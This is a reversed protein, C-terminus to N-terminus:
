LSRVVEVVGAVILKGDPLVLVSRAEEATGGIPLGALDALNLFVRGGDGFSTDPTGDALFRAVVMQSDGGVVAFGAALVNGSADFAVSWFRDDGDASLEHVGAVAASSDTPPVIVLTADEDERTTANSPYGRYGCAALLDDAASFAVGYLHEVPFGFDHEWHGDADFGTALAGNPDLMLIRADADGGSSGVAVLYDGLTAHAAPLALINRGRDNETPDLDLELVGDFADDATSFAPDLDGAATLGISVLNVTTAAADSRGYGVTVIRGSSQVAAAYAEAMGWPENIPDSPAFPNLNVVGARAVDVGAGFSPDLTGSSTLAVLVASNESKSGVGTPQSTYGSALIVGSDLVLGGRVTDNLGTIDFVHMGTKPGTPDMSDVPPGFTDDLGSGDALVRATVRATDVRLASTGDDAKKMGFLIVNGAGDLAATSLSDHFDALGDGDGDYGDGFDVLVVGDTGYSTDVTGDGNLRVLAIDRDVLAGVSGGDGEDGCGVAGLVVSLVTAVLTKSFIPVNRGLHLSHM